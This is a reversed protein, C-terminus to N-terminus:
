VIAQLNMELYNLNSVNYTNSEMLIIVNARQEYTLDNNVYLMAVAFLSLLFLVVKTRQLKLKQLM